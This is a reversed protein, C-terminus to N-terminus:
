ITSNNAMLSTMLKWFKMWRQFRWRWLGDLKKAETCLITRSFFLQLRKIFEKCTKWLKSFDLSACKTDSDRCDHPFSFVRRQIWAVVGQLLSFASSLPSHFHVCRHSDSLFVFLFKCLYFFCCCCCEKKRKQSENPATSGWWVASVRGGDIVYREVASIRVEASGGIWGNDWGGVYQIYIWCVIM